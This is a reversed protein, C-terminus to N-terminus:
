NRLSDLGKLFSVENKIQQIQLEYFSELVTKSSRTIPNYM